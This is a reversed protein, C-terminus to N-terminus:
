LILKKVRAFVYTQLTRFNVTPNKMDTVFNWAEESVVDHYVTNLLEMINKGSFGDYKNEIKAYVKDCLAKTVYKEAITNEVITKAKQAKAGFERSHEEGFETSIVKAWTARGYRNKFDYNKIVIGEGIGQGDEILMTNKKLQNTLSEHTPDDIIAIPRIAEIGHKELGNLYSAYHLYRMTDDGDIDSEPLDVAVDFVYFNRWASDRYTKLSHPVLWEGFLRHTPFEELYAAINRQTVVWKYFGANDGDKSDDLKRTRSGAQVDGDLWISANTGDLKPFIYCTGKEIGEVEKTGLRCVHQFKKFNM